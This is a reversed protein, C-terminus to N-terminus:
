VLAQIEDAARMGSELAGEMWGPMISTHDGAFHVRRDPTALHPLFRLMQGPKYWVYAGRARWNNDWGYSFAYEVYGPLQPFIRALQRITRRIRAESSLANMAVAAPGSFYVELIGRRGPQQYASFVSMGDLDSFVTGSPDVSEWFRERCQLFVRVVSTMPLHHIVDRKAPSWDPSVPIRRLVTFPIASILYDGRFVTPGKRTRCTVRVGRSSQDIAVVPAGYVIRDALAQAFAGPLRDMGGSVAFSQGPSFLAAQALIFLASCSELGDGFLDLMGTGLLEIAGKSAHNRELLTQASIADYQRAQPPPWGVLSPVGVKQVDPGLYTTVLGDLGLKQEAPTMPLPWKVRAGDRVLINRGRLHFMSPLHRPFILQFPLGFRTVAQMVRTHDDTFCMAGADAFMGDAFCNRLTHVRGGPRGTSEVVTADIGANTLEYAASLGALGAGAVIV